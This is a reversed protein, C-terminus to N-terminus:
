GAIAILVPPFSNAKPEKSFIATERLNINTSSAATVMTLDRPCPIALAVM